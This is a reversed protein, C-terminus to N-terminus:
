LTLCVQGYPNLRGKQTNQNQVILIRL